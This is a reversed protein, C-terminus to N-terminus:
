LTNIHLANLELREPEAYLHYGESRGFPIWEKASSMVLNKLRKRMFLFESISSSSRYSNYWPFCMGNLLYIFINLSALAEIGSKRSFNLIVAKM